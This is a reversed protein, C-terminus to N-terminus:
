PLLERPSRVRMRAFVRIMEVFARVALFCFMVVAGVVLVSAWWQESPLASLQGVMSATFAVWAILALAPSLGRVFSIGLRSGM